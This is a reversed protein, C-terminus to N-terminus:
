NSSLPGREGSGGCALSMPTKTHCRSLRGDSLRGDSLRGDSLRGDPSAIGLRTSARLLSCRSGQGGAWKGASSDGGAEVKIGCPDQARLLIDLIENSLM